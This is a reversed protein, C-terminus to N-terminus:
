RDDRAKPRIEFCETGVGHGAIEAGRRARWHSCSEDPPQCEISFTACLEYAGNELVRYRYPDGTEPDSGPAFGVADGLARLDPPLSDEQAWYANVGDVIEFLDSVRRRDLKQKRADGPSGAVVLGIVVAAAVATSVALAFL